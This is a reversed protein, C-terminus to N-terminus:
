RLITGFFAKIRELLDFYYLVPLLAALFIILGYIWRPVKKVLRCIREWMTRKTAENQTRLEQRISARNAIQVNEAQIGGSIHINVGAKEAEAHAIERGAKQEPLTIQPTRKSEAKLLEKYRSM